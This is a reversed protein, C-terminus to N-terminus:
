VRGKSILGSDRDINGARHILLEPGHGANVLYGHSTRIKREVVNRGAFYKLNSKREISGGRAAVFRPKGHTKKGDFASRHRRCLCDEGAHMFKFGRRLARELSAESTSETSVNGCSSKLVEERLM